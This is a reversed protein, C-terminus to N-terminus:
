EEGLPNIFYGRNKGSLGDDYTEVCKYGAKIGSAVSATNDLTIRSSIGHLGSAQRWHMKAKRRMATAFGKGTLEESVGIFGEHITQEALDRENFYFLSLGKLNGGADVLVLCCKDPVLKLLALLHWTLCIGDLESKIAAVKEVERRSCSRIVMGGSLSQASFKPFKRFLNLNLVLFRM